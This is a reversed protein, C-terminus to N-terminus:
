RHAGSGQTPGTNGEIDDATFRWRLTKVPEVPDNSRIDVAFVHLKDMGQHMGMPLPLEM